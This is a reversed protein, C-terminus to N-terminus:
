EDELLQAPFIVDEYIDDMTLTLAGNPLSEFRVEDDVRLVLMQTVGRKGWSSVFLV